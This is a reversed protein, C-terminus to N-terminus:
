KRPPRRRDHFWSRYQEMRARQDAPAQARCTSAEPSGPPAGWRTEACDNLNYTMEFAPSRALVEALTLEFLSGDTRTYKVSRSKLERDLVAQLSAAGSAPQAYREPRRAV